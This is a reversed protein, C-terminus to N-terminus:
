LVPQICSIDMIRGSARTESGPKHYLKERYASRKMQQQQFISLSLIM